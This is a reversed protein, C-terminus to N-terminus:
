SFVGPYDLTARLLVDLILFSFLAARYNAGQYFLQDGRRSTPNRVFDLAQFIMWGGSILAVVMYVPGLGTAAGLALSLLVGFGWCLAVLKSTVPIGYTAPLTPIGKERDGLTDRSADCNTFGWDTICIMLGLIIGGAHAGPGAKLIGLPSIALWVGFPVLGFAVGVLVWSFPTKRKAWMSYATIVLTAAILVVFSEPNLYLAVATAFLFLLLCYALAGRKTVESSPLPRNPMAIRDVDVDCFDNYVYSSTIASYAGVTALLFPFLRPLEGFSSYAALLAAAGPMALDM